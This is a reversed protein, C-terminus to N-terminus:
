FTEYSCKGVYVEGSDIYQLGYVKIEEDTLPEDYVVAGFFMITTGSDSESDPPSYWRVPGDFVTKLNEKPYGGWRPSRNQLGYLYRKKKPPTLTTLLNDAEKAKCEALIAELDEVLECIAEAASGEMLYALGHLVGIIYQIKERQAQTM